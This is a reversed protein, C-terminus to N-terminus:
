YEIFEIGSPQTVYNLPDVYDGNIMIALHLHAGFSYGTNGAYGIPTGQTVYDGASVAQGSLHAYYSVVGNGHDIGVYNGFGSSWTSEVVTGDKIAIVTKGSTGSHCCIDVGHHYGISRSGFMSSIYTDSYPLPWIMDGNVVGSGYYTNQERLKEEYKNIEKEAAEIAAQYEASQANYSNVVAMVKDLDRQVTAEAEEIKSRAAVQEEKKAEYDKKAANLEEIKDALRLKAADLEQIEKELQEKNAILEKVLADDHETIRSVLEMRELYSQFEFDDSTLIYELASNPGSMYNARLRQGLITYTDAIKQQIKLIKQDLEKIQKNLADIENNIDTIQEDLADIDADILAIEDNYLDIQDQLTSIKSQLASIDDDYEAAKADLEAIRQENAAIQDQIDAIKANIEAKEEDTVALATLSLIGCLMTLALLLPLVRPRKPNIMKSWM